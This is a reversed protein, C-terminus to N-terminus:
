GLFAQWPCFSMLLNRSYFTKYCQGRSPSCMPHTYYNELKVGANALADINPTPIPSGHYGVDAYGQDDTLRFSNQFFLCPVLSSREHGVWGLNKVFLANSSNLASAQRFIALIPVTVIGSPCLVTLVMNHHYWPLVPIM